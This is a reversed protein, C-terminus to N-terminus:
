QMCKRLHALLKPDGKYPTLDLDRPVAKLKEHMDAKVSPLLSRNYPLWMMGAGLVGRREWANAAAHSRPYGWGMIDICAKEMQEHRCIYPRPDFERQHGDESYKLMPPLHRDFYITRGDISYGALYPLDYEKDNLNCFTHVRLWIDHNRLLRDLVQTNLPAPELLQPYGHGASV